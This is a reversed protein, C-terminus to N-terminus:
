QKTSDLNRVQQTWLGDCHPITQWRRIGCRSSNEALELECRSKWAGLCGTCPRDEQVDPVTQGCRGCSVSRGDDEDEGGSVDNETVGFPAPQSARVNERQEVVGFVVINGEAQQWPVELQAVKQLWKKPVRTLVDCINYHFAESM